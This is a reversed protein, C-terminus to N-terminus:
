RDARPIPLGPGGCSQPNVKYQPCTGTLYSPMGSPWRGSHLAQWQIPINFLLAAAALAGSVALWRTLMTARTSLGLRDAGGEVLTRGRDDRFYRLCVWGFTQVGGCLFEMVPLQYRSGGLFAHTAGPLAYWGVFVSSWELVLDIGMCAVLGILLLGPLSLNPWRRKVARLVASGVLMAGFVWFIYGAGVVLPESMRDQHPSIWGPVFGSWSGLNLLHANYSLWNQSYNFFPDWFWAFPLALLICGDTTLRRERRWPRILFRGIFFAALIFGGAQLGYLLYLRATSIHDGGTPVPRFQDSAIWRIWVMLSFALMFAGFLAVYAVPGAFRRTPSAPDGVALGSRTLKEAPKITSTM